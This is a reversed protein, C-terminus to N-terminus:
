RNEISKGRNKFSYFTKKFFIKMRTKIFVAASLVFYNGINKLLFSRYRGLKAERSKLATNLLEDRKLGSLYKKRDERTMNWNPGFCNEICTGTENLFFTFIKKNSYEGWDSKVRLFEESFCKILDFYDPPCKKFMDTQPNERYFYLADEIIRCSEVASFYRINFMGDQLRKMAPFQIGNKEIISRRYIKNWLYGAMGEPFTGAFFDRVQAKGDLVTTDIFIKDANGVGEVFCQYGCAVVDYGETITSYLKELMNNAMYDDADIFMIYEGSSEEIGKNRAPGAGESKEKHYYKIREDQKSYGKIIELSNDGSGDDVLVLEWDSYTQQQVSKICRDLYKGCNFVPIIISIM